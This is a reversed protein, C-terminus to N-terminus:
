VVLACNNDRMGNLFLKNAELFPLRKGDVVLRVSSNGTTHRRYFHRAEDRNVTELMDVVAGMMYATLRYAHIRKQRKM